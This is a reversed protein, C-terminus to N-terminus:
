LSFLHELRLNPYSISNVLDVRLKLTGERRKGYKATQTRKEHGVITEIENDMFGATRLQDVVTHRLSYTVLNKGTKVGIDTLYRNFERSFQAAIQGEKPIEVEPFLQREGAAVMREHHKLLGVRILESHIPVVRKSNHNKTRKNEGEDNIDMIWVGADQRIDATHLQAIEAPRAGSFAMILPIWFRHDRVAVNGPKDLDRWEASQCATFLPSTFLTTLAEDSFTDRENAPGNKKPLMDAVPNADLYGNKSLWRCFGGLSALYRRITNRTLTPKPTALTKNKAVVERVGLDKFVATETAKVPWDALIGKWESVMRKDIKSARVRSGVFDAFHQVDRRAQAFTEPRINNPNETEYKAFVQMIGEGTSGIPEPRNVPEVVVPDKPKGTFDGRDREAHRELQEIDARMLKFCLERYRTGGHEIDFGNKALFRDADAEIFRTDGNALDARLRNLRSTRRHAAWTAKNALIEVETMANIAAIPGAEHAGSKIADLAARETAADIEAQTPRSARERDGEELKVTYHDWVAVEIDAESLDRRRRMDDFTSAWQDLHPTLRRKAEGYDKTELSRWIQKKGQMAAQLDTPVHVLAYYVAGRRMLNTHAM